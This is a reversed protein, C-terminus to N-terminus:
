CGSSDFRPSQVDRRPSPFAERCGCLTMVRRANLILPIIAEKPDPLPVPWRHRDSLLPWGVHEIAESRVKRSTIQSIEVDKRLSIRIVRKPIQTLIDSLHAVLSVQMLWSFPRCKSYAGQQAYRACWTMHIRALFIMSTAKRDHLQQQHSHFTESIYSFFM